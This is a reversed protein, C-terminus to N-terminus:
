FLLIYISIRGSLSGVPVLLQRAPYVKIKLCLRLSKIVRSPINAFCLAYINNTRLARPWSDFLCQRAAYMKLYYICIHISLQRALEGAQPYPVAALSAPESDPFVYM